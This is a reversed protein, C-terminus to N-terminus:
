FRRQREGTVIRFANGDQEVTEHSLANNNAAPHIDDADDAGATHDRRRDLGSARFLGNGPAMQQNGGPSPRRDVTESEVSRPNAIIAGSNDHVPLEFGGVTSDIR